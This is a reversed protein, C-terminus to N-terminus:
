SILEAYEEKEREDSARFANLRRLCLYNSRGKAIAYGFRKLDSLFKLDKSVVQEQLNITRTSIIAKDGSALLPVIYAFTKGTGTGAEALLTGGKEIIRACARLMDMQAQRPEYDKLAASVLHGMFKEAVGALGQFNDSKLETGETRRPGTFPTTWGRSLPTQATQM